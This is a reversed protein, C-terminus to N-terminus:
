LPLYPWSKMVFLCLWRILEAEGGSYNGYPFCFMNEFISIEKTFAAKSATWMVEKLFTRRHFFPARFDLLVWQVETRGGGLSGVCVVQWFGGETCKTLLSWVFMLVFLLLPRFIELMCCFSFASILPMWNIIYCSM